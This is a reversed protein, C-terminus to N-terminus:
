LVDDNDRFIIDLLLGVLHFPMAVHVNLQLCTLCCYDNQINLGVCLVAHESPANLCLM